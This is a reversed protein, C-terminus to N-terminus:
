CVGAVGVQRRCALHIAALPLALFVLSILTISYPLSPFLFRNFVTAHVQLWDLLNCDDAFGRLLSMAV